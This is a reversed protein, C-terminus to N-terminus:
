ASSRALSKTWLLQVETPLDPYADHHVADLSFGHRLYFRCAPVNIQQTEVQLQRAGLEAAAHEVARLLAAGIGHRREHPVVRLDWLIARESQGENVVLTAGGVRQDDVYASLIILSTADFQLPWATPDNGPHADYDKLYPVAIPASSPDEGRRLRAIATDDFVDRVLFAIPVRAYADLHAPSEHRIELHM